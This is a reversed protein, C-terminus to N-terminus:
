EEAICNSGAPRTTTGRGLVRHLMEETWRENRELIFTEKIAKFEECSMITLPTKFQSFHQYNLRSIYKIIRAMTTQDFRCNDSPMHSPIIMGSNKFFSIEEDTCSRRNRFLGDASSEM